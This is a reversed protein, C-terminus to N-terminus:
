KIATLKDINKILIVSKDNILLNDTSLNIRYGDTEAFVLYDVNEKSIMEKTDYNYIFLYDKFACRVYSFAPLEIKEEGLELTVDDIFFYTNVGDYIFADSIEMNLNVNSLRSNVKEKEVTTFYNLRNQKLSGSPRIISMSNPFIVKDKNKFYIPESLNKWDNDESTLNTVNNNRDLVVKGTYEMLLDDVYFYIEEEKSISYQEITNRARSMFFLFVFMLLVIIVFLVIENKFKKM